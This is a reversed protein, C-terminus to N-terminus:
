LLSFHSKILNSDFENYNREPHWQFGLIKKEKNEYAEIINDESKALCFLESSLKDVSIGQNHFSNVENNNNKIDESILKHYKNVHGSINHVLGGGLQVNIFHFGRCIGLLPLKNSIAFNFLADETNDRELYVDTLNELSNYRDPNINNGGTLIVGQILFKNLYAAINNLNNPVLLVTIGLHEFYKVTDFSISNRKEFYNIAETVRSSIAIIM